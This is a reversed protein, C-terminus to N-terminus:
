SCVTHWASGHLDSTDLLVAHLRDTGQGPNICLSDGVIDQYAGTVNPSEHIHGHLALLPRRREIFERVARSGVPWAIDPLWDLRTNHPPAHSVLVWPARVACGTSLEAQLPPREAFCARADAARPTGNCSLRGGHAPMPDDPMDLREFDKVTWPTPPSLSFGLFDLGGLSFPHSLDLAVFRKGDSADEITRASDLWDHNGHIMAIRLAPLAAMWRALRPLHTTQTWHVQSGIPDDERGDPLMDGGLILLEPREHLVLRELQAYLAENGHIDSTFCIRM